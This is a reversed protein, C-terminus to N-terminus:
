SKVTPRNTHVIKVDYGIQRHIKLHHIKKGCFSLPLTFFNSYITNGLIRHYSNITAAHTISAYPTKFKIECWKRASFRFICIYKWVNEQYYVKKKSTVYLTRTRSGNRQIKRGYEGFCHTLCWWTCWIRLNM